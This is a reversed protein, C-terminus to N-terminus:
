LTLFTSSWYELSDWTQRMRYSWLSPSAGSVFGVHPFLFTRSQRGGLGRCLSVSAVQGEPFKAQWDGLCVTGRLGLTGRHDTIAMCSSYTFKYKFSPPFSPVVSDQKLQRSLFFLHSKGGLLWRQPEVSDSHSPGFAKIALPEM